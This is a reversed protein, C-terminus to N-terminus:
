ATGWKATCYSRLRDMEGTTLARAYAATEGTDGGLTVASNRGFNPAASSATNDTNGNGGVWVISGTERSGGVQLAYTGNVYDAQWLVFSATGAAVAASAASSTVNTDSDLRRTGVSPRGTTLGITCLFRAGATGGVATFVRNAAALSAIKVVAWLCFGSINQTMTTANALALADNNAATYTITNRSNIGATTYAPQIAGTGQSAHRANTTRDNIQSVDSGNLTVTSAISPDLWLAPSAVSGPFASAGPGIGGMRGFRFGLKGFSM